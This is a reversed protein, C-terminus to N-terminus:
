KILTLNKVFKEINERAGFDSAISGSFFIKFLGEIDTPSTVKENVCIAVRELGHLAVFIGFEFIVNDRTKIV